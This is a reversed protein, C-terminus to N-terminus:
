AAKRRNKSKHSIQRLPDLGWKRLWRFYSRAHLWADHSLLRASGRQELHYCYTGGNLMVRWGAQLMRQCFDVDEFYKKFGSDLCGVQEFAERRVMLFCGSLWDCDFIEHPSRDRYLYRDIEGSLLGGLRLRRAVMTKLLQIRRAPYAYSGDAHYLRCGAIGCDPHTQMFDVMKVLCQEEPEFYMDTNLLLVYPATSHELVRNLNDAYGLRKQNCLVTTHDFYSEWADTGEQSVNDILILHMALNGGSHSLSSLLKPMFETEHTYIIGIELDYQDRLNPKTIQSVERM